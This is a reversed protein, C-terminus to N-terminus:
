PICPADIKDIPPLRGSEWRIRAPLSAPQDSCHRGTPCVSQCLVRKSPPFCSRCGMMRRCWEPAHRLCRSSFFVLGHQADRKPVMGDAGNSSPCAYREGFMPCVLLVRWPFACDLARDAANYEKDFLQLRVAFFAKSRMGSWAPEMPSPKAFSKLRKDRHPSHRSSCRNMCSPPM